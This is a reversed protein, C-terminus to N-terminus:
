RGTWEAWIRVDDFYGSCVDLVNRQCVLLMQVAHTDAPAVWEQTSDAWQALANETSPHVELELGAADHFSFIVYTPDDGANEPRHSAYYHFRVGEADSWTTIASVDVRQQLTFASLEPPGWGASITRIGEAPGGPPNANTSWNPGSIAMWGLPPIQLPMGEEGGGNVLLNHTTGEARGVLPRSTSADGDVDQFTVQLARAHDGFAAPAFVIQAECSAGVELTQPCDHGLVAFAGDLEAVQLGTADAQGENTIEFTHEVMEGFPTTGFDFSPGDSIGVVPHDVVGVDMSGGSGDAVSTVMATAGDATAATGQEGSSSGAPSATSASGAGTPDFNCAGVVVVMGIGVLGRM